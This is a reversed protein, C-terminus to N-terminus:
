SPSESVGSNVFGFGITTVLYVVALLYSPSESVGSNVFGFGFLSGNSLLFIGNTILHIESYQRKMNDLPQTLCADMAYHLTAYAGHM